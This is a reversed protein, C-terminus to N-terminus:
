PRLKKDFSNVEGISTVSGMKAWVGLNADWIWTECCTNLGNAYTYTICVSITDYPLSTSSNYNFVNHTTSMSDEGLITGDNATTIWYDVFTNVNNLQLTMQFQSGSVTISDCLVVPGVACVAQCTSLSTYQGM